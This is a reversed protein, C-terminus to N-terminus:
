GIHGKAESLKLEISLVHVHPIFCSQTLQCLWYLDRSVNPRLGPAKVYIPYIAILCTDLPHRLSNM